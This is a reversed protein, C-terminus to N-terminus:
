GAMLSGRAIAEHLRQQGWRFNERNSEVYVWSRGLRAAAISFAGSCGFPEVVLDGRHSHKRILFECLSSPKQFMHIAELPIEGRIMRSTAGRTASPFSLVDSRSLNSEHWELCDGARVFVLIRESAPAYPCACDSPVCAGKLWTLGYLCAWGLSAAETLM